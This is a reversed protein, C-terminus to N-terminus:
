VRGGKRLNSFRNQLQDAASSGQSSKGLTIVSQGVHNKTPWLGKKVM